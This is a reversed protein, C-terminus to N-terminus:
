PRSTNPHGPGSPCRGLPDSLGGRSRRDHSYAVNRGRFPSPEPGLSLLVAVHDVRHSSYVSGGTAYWWLLAGTSANLADLKTDTSGRVRRREGSGPLFLRPRRDRLVLPGCGDLRQPCLAQRRHVRRVRCRERRGPLVLHLWRDALLVLSRVLPPTSPTSSATTPGWTCSVTRSPRPPISRAGPRTLGFSRVRRPTSPTSSTTSPGWTCSVTRWPRPPGPAGPAASAWFLAM